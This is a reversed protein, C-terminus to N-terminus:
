FATTQQLLGMRQNKPVLYNGSLFMEIAVIARRPEEARLEMINSGYFLSAPLLVVILAILTKSSIKM